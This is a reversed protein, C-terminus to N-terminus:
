ILLTVGLLLPTLLASIVNTALYPTHEGIKDRHKIAGSLSYISPILGLLAILSLTPLAQNYVGLTMILAAGFLSVGYLINAADVGYAILVHNRGAQKDAVIDPFQNLLLLNNILFFVIGSGYLATEIMKGSLVFSTGGVMLLGFGLGPAIACLLPQKNLWQTYTIVLLIGLIGLPLLATGRLWIFYLGILATVALSIIGTLRVSHAAQPNGPLAGSGGSFPTRATKLDLGSRYDFYENLSNVSIHAALAAIFSLTLLLLPIDISDAKLTSGALFICIPTLVLFNPRTTQFVTSINM